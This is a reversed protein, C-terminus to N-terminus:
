PLPPRREPWPLAREAVAGIRLVLPEAFARGMIQLGYPLGEHMGTPVSLAPWGLQSLPLVCSLLAPRLGQPAGGVLVETADRPPAVVATSPALLADVGDM